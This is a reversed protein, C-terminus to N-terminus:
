INSQAEAIIPAFKKSSAEGLKRLGNNVAELVLEGITDADYKRLVERDIAVETFEGSGKLKVTVDGGAAYATIVMSELSRQVEEIRRQQEQVQALLDDISPEM